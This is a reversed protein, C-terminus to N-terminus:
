DTESADITDGGTTYGAMYWKINKSECEPCEISETMFDEPPIGDEAIHFGFGIEHCDLCEPEYMIGASFKVEMWGSYKCRECGLSNKTESNFCHPCKARM